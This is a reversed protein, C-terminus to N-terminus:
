HITGSPTSIESRIGNLSLKVVEPRVRAHAKEGFPMCYMHTVDDILREGYEDDLNIACFTENYWSHTLTETFFRKKCDFYHEMTKHYDLHEESLNTFVGGIFDIGTVRQLDMSHSSVELIAYDVSVNAMEHLMKNLDIAEPTTRTSSYEQNLFRYNITGIVGVSFSAERLISEILHTTTTKGNTGTVGIVKLKRSPYDYFLASVKAMAARSDPVMVYTLGKPVEIQKEGIAAVSGNNYADYIFRHGDENFGQIAFFLGGDKAHMSNYYIDTINKPSQNVVKKEELCELLLSLNM